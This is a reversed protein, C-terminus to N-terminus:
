STFPAAVHEISWTRSTVAIIFPVNVRAFSHQPRGISKGDAYFKTFALLSAATGSRWRIKHAALLVSAGCSQRSEHCVICANRVGFLQKMKMGSGSGNYSLEGSGGSDFLWGHACICMVGSQSSPLQPVRAHGRRDRPQHGQCHHLSLSKPGETPHRGDLRHGHHQQAPVACM